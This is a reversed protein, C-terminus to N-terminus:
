RLPRLSITETAVGDKSSAHRLKMSCTRVRQGGTPERFRIQRLEPRLDELVQIVQPFLADPPDLCLKTKTRFVARFVEERGQGGDVVVLTLICEGFKSRDVCPLAAVARLWNPFEKLRLLMSGCGFGGSNGAEPLGASCHCCAM